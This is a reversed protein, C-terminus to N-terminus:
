PKCNECPSYNNEIAEERDSFEIQNRPGPLSRCNFRHFIKSKKNGIYKESMPKDTQLTTEQTPEVTPIPNNEATNYNCGSLLFSFILLIALFLKKIKM